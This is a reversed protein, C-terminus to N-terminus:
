YTNTRDRVAGEARAARGQNQADIYAGQINTGLVNDVAGAIGALPLDDATLIQFHLKRM